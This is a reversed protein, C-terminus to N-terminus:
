YQYDLIFYHENDEIVFGLYHIEIGINKLEYIGSRGVMIQEGNICMMLGPATQVGIQKLKGKNEISPNLVDIVNKIISLNETEIKTLRGYFGKDNKEEFDSAIRALEFQIENYIRNANITIIIEFVSYDNENGAPIRVTKIVQFNDTVKDTDILKIDIVQPEVQKQVKFRFYYSEPKGQNDVPSLVLDGSLKLASDLFTVGKSLDSEVEVDTMTYDLPTLFSQIQNRRIQGFKYTAM